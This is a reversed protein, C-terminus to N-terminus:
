DRHGDVSNRGTCTLRGVSRFRKYSNDGNQYQRWNSRYGDGTYTGEPVQLISRAVTSVATQISDLVPEVVIDPISFKMEVDFRYLVRLCLINMCFSKFTSQATPLGRFVPDMLLWNVVCDGTNICTIYVGRTRPIEIIQCPM